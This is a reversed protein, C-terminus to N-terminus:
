GAPLMEPVRGAQRTESRGAGFRERDIVLQSVFYLLLLFNLVESDTFMDQVWSSILYAVLVPLFIIRALRDRIVERCWFFLFGLFAFGGFAGTAGFAELYDNHAHGSFYVPVMKGNVEKKHDKPIGYKIKLAVCKQELQRYGLGFCPHKLFTLWAVKWQNVRVSDAKLADLSVYRSKEVMAFAAALITLSALGILLSRRRYIAVLCLGGGIAGALAGRTYSFYLGLVALILSAVAVLNLWRYGQFLWSWVDRGAVFLSVLLLVSFQVSYAYTMVMAYVGSVRTPYSAPALLLPNYGTLVGVMGSLTAFSLSILWALLLWPVWDKIKRSILTMLDPMLLLCAWILHYRLKKLISFPGKIEHLNVLISIVIALAVLILFVTSWRPWRWIAGGGGWEENGEGLRRCKYSIVLQLVIAIVFLGHSVSIFVNGFYSGLCSSFLGAFLSKEVVSSAQFKM